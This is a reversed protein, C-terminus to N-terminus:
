LLVLDKVWQTLSPISSADEHISTLNTVASGHPYSRFSMAKMTVNKGFVFWLTIFGKRILTIKLQKWIEVIIFGTTIYMSICSVKELHTTIEQSFKLFSRYEECLKQFVFLIQLFMRVDISM